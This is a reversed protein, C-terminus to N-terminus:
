LANNEVRVALQELNDFHTNLESLMDTVIQTLNPTTHDVKPADKNPSLLTQIAQLTAEDGGNPFNARQELTLASMSTELKQVYNAVAKPIKEMNQIRNSLALVEAYSGAALQNKKTSLEQSLDVLNGNNEAYSAILAKMQQGIAKHAPDKPGFTSNEAAIIGDNVGRAFITINADSMSSKFARMAVVPNPSAIINDRKQELIKKIYNKANEDPVAALTAEIRENAMEVLKEKVRAIFPEPGVGVIERAVRREEKGVNEFKQRGSDYHQKEQPDLNKVVDDIDKQTTKLRQERYVKKLVNLEEPELNPGPINSLATEVDQVAMRAAIVEPANKIGNPFSVGGEAGSAIALLQGWTYGEAKVRFIDNGKFAHGECGPKFPQGDVGVGNVVAIGGRNIFTDYTIGNTHDEIWMHEPTVKGERFGGCLFINEVPLVIEQEKSLKQIEQMNELREARVEEKTPEPYDQIEYNNDEAKKDEEALEHLIKAQVRQIEKMTGIDSYKANVEQAKDWTSPSAIAFVHCSIGKDHVPSNSNDRGTIARGHHSYEQFLANYMATANDQKPM